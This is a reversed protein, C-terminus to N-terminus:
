LKPEEEEEIGRGERGGGKRARPHSIRRRRTVAANEEKGRSWNGGEVRNPMTAGEDDEIFVLQVYHVATCKGNRLRNWTKKRGYRVDM